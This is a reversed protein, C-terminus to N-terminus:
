ETNKSDRWLTEMEDLTLDDLNTETRAAKEEMSRFRKVFKASTTELANGPAVGLKRALNVVTFLMDGIENKIDNRDGGAIAEELEDREEALKELIGSHDPWDFGVGAAEKQIAIAKRLAPLEPPIAYFALDKRGTRKESRKIREWEAVSEARNRAKSSGFVHPHRNIIKRHAQSVIESLGVEGTEQLLEHIFVVLFIVDGLEERVGDRNGSKEAHLLEYSETILYSILDDLTQERDWPCGKESRLMRLTRRLAAIEKEVDRDVDAM